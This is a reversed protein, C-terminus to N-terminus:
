RTAVAQGLARQQEQWQQQQDAGQQPPAVGQVCPQFLNVLVDAVELAVALPVRGLRDQDVDQQGHRHGQAQRQAAVGQLDVGPASRWGRRPAQQLDGLGPQHEVGGVADERRAAHGFQVEAPLFGLDFEEPSPGGSPQHHQGQHGHHRHGFWCGAASASSTSPM